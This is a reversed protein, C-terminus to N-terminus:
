LNGSVKEMLRYAQARNNYPSPNQSCLQIAESFKAIATVYDQAEAARM